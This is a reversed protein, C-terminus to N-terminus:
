FMSPRLSSLKSHRWTNFTPSSRQCEEPVPLFGETDTLLRFDTKLFIGFEEISSM